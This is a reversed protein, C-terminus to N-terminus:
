GVHGVYFYATNSTQGHLTLKINLRGVNGIRSDLLVVAYYLDSTGNVVGVSEVNLVYSNGQSDTATATMASSSEGPSLAMNSGFLMVRTRHDASFNQENNVLFPDHTQTVSDLAVAHSTGAEVQLVPAAVAYPALSAFINLKGQGFVSSYGQPDYADHNTNSTLSAKISASNLAPNAQLLLAVSGAVVPTAMSTGALGTYHVSDSPADSGYGINGFNTDTVDASRSSYLYYGPASVDPKQRGDATPGPSSFYAISNLPYSSSRTVYAGVTIAGRATGPSAILHSSNDMYSTFKPAGVWADFHGNSAISESKITFTWNAGLSEAGAKFDVYLETQDNQSNSDRKTDTTHYVTMYQDDIVKVYGGSQYPVSTTQTGNPRTVVISVRDANNYYLDLFQPNMVQSNNPDTTNISLSVTGGNVFNGAAHSGSGGDNGAAVCVVRGAAANVTQDIAVEEPLTGDHAGAQGGLSMNIVFPEGLELAKQQIFQIANVMDDTRFNDTGDIQRSTKVIILDAEPAMGAYVGPATSAALGNGAAIGAVHTGHGAKDKEQITLTGQLAANIEAQTSLKGIRATMGPLTYNWGPDPASGGYVSMDLMAKIRSSRGGSGPVTFDLHHFDIGTDIIGVVVGRGTQGVIRQHASNDIGVAQRARDNLPYRLTAASIGKVGSFSALEALHDIDAEVTVIEGAQAGIAFGADLLQQKGEDDVRVNLGIRVSGNADESLAVRKSISDNEIKEHAAAPSSRELRRKEAVAHRALHTFKDAKGGLEVDAQKASAGLNFLLSSLLAVLCFALTLKLRSKFLTQFVRSRTHPHLHPQSIRSM